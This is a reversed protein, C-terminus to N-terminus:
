GLAPLYLCSPWLILLESSDDQGVFGSPPWGPIRVSVHTYILVVGLGPVSAVSMEEGPEGAQM